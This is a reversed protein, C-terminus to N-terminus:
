LQALHRTPINKSLTKSLFVNVHAQNWSCNQGKNLSKILSLAWPSCTKINVM